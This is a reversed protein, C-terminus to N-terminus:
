EKDTKDDLDLDLPKKIEIKISEVKSDINLNTNVDRQKPLAFELLKIYNDIYAKPNNERLENMTKQFDEVGGEIIATLAERLQKKDGNQSGKPRGNSLNHNPQFPM